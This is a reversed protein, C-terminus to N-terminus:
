ADMRIDEMDLLKDPPVRVSPQEVSWLLGALCWAWIANGPIVTLNSDTLGHLLLALLGLRIGWVLALPKAQSIPATLVLFWFLFFSGLGIWGLESGIQIYDNHAYNVFAHLSPFTQATEPRFETWAYIFNGPGVGFWPYKEIIQLGGQYIAFREALHDQLWPWLHIPNKAFEPFMPLKALIKFVLYWIGWVSIATGAVVMGTRVSKWWRRGLSSWYFLLGFIVLAVAPFADWSLTLLLNAAAIGLPVLWLWFLRKGGLIVLSALLPVLLTLLGGYHTPHFYTSSVRLREDPSARDTFLVGQTQAIGYAGMVLIFVGLVGLVFQTRIRSNVLQVVLFFGLVYCSWNLGWELAQYPYISGLTSVVIVGLVLLGAVTIPWPPLRLRSGAALALLTFTFSLTVGVRLLVYGWQNWGGGAIPTGVLAVLLAVLALWELVTSLKLKM